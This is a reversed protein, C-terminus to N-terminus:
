AEMILRTPSPAALANKNVRDILRVVKSVEADDFFGFLGQDHYNTFPPKFLMERDIMGNKTLYSIIQNIFTIQDGQLSGVQIFEAFVDQAATADLGVIGRIFEGLPQDGYHDIYDQKSGVTEGDFLIGELQDIESATIPKNTKLKHIVLHDNHERVYSEMRDQYSQLRGYAPILEHVAIEDHDLTDEFTTEVNQQVEKDLYKMLDRLALRVEDLRNINM